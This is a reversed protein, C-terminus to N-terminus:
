NQTVETPLIAYGLQYLGKRLLQQLDPEGLLSAIVAVETMRGAEALAVDAIRIRAGGLQAVAWLRNRMDGPLEALADRVAAFAATGALVPDLDLATVPNHEGRAPQPEGLSNEPVKELLRDRVKSLEGALDAIRRAELVDLEYLM